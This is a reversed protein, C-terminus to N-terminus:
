DDRKLDGDEVEGRARVHVGGAVRERDRSGYAGRVEHAEMAVATGPRQRQPLPPQPFPQPPHKEDCIAPDAQILTPRGLNVIPM